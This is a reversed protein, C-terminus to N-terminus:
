PSEDFGTACNAMVADLDDLPPVAVRSYREVVGALEVRDDRGLVSLIQTVRFTGVRRPEFTLSKLELRGALPGLPLPLIAPTRQGSALVHASGAELLSPRM